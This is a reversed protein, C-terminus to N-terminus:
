RTGAWGAPPEIPRGHRAMLLEMARTESSTAALDAFYAKLEGPHTKEDLLEGSAQLLWDISRRAERDADDQLGSRRVLMSGLSKTMLSVDSSMIGRGIRACAELRPASPKPLRAHDCARSLSLFRVPFAAAYAMAMIDTANEAEGHGSRAAVDPPMPRAAIAHRFALWTEAFHDDYGPAEAIRAIAADTQKGDRPLGEVLPIWSLGNEPEVRSWASADGGLTSWTMQVLADAPAAQAATRLATMPDTSAELDLRAFLARERPSGNARIAALLGNTYARGAREAATEAVGEDDGPATALSALLLLTTLVM